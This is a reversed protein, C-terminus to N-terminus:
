PLRIDVWTKDGVSPTPFGFKEAIQDPINRRSLWQDDMEQLNEVVDRMERRTGPFRKFADIISLTVYRIAPYKDRIMSVALYVNETDNTKNLDLDPMRMRSLFDEGKPQGQIEDRDATSAFIWACPQVKFVCGGSVYKGEELISLFMDYVPVGALPANVEDVFVLLRKRPNETQHSTIEHFWSLMRERTTAQTVNYERRTLHTHDALSRVLSSKGSAPPAFLLGALPRAPRGSAFGRLKAVWEALLQRKEEVCAVFGPVISTGRWHEICREDSEERGDATSARIPLTGAGKLSDEWKLREDKWELKKVRSCIAIGYEDSKSTVRGNEDLSIIPEPDITATSSDDITRIDYNAYRCSYWLADEIGEVLPFALGSRSIMACTLCSFFTSAMPSYSELRIDPVHSHPQYAATNGNPGRALVSYGSPLCVITANDRRLPADAGHIFSEIASLAEPTPLAREGGCFWTHVKRTTQLAQRPLLDITARRAAMEPILLLQVNVRETHLVRLWTANWAKSSIFWRAAKTQKLMAIVHVLADSVVGKCLDKVIVADFTMGKFKNDLAKLLSDEHTDTVWERPGDRQWGDPPVQWDLRGLLEFSAGTRRFIRQVRTTGILQKEKIPINDALNILTVTGSTPDQPIPRSLTYPTCRSISDRRLMALLFPDDKPAWIGLGFIRLSTGDNSKSQHLLSAIRGAGVLTQVKSDPVHIARLPLNGPRSATLSHQDAAVHYEDVVWDGILLINRTRSQKKDPNM